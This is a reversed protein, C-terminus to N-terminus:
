TPKFEDEMLIKHTSFSSDIAKIDSISWNIDGKNSKLVELLKTKEHTSLTYSIVVPLQDEGQLFAYELNEPLEKLELKPPETTSPKLQNKLPKWELLEIQERRPYFSVAQALREPHFVGMDMLILNLMPKSM